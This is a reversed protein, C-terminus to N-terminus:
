EVIIPFTGISLVIAKCKKGGPSRTKLPKIGWEKVYEGKSGGRFPGLKTDKPAEQLTSPILFSLPERQGPYNIKFLRGPSYVKRKKFTEKLYVM